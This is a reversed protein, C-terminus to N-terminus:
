PNVVKINQPPSPISAPTPTPTTPTPTPSPTPTPTPTPTATPTPTPSCAVTTATATNSYTSNSEGNADIRYARVKYWRPGSLTLNSVYTTTDAPVTDIQSFTTNNISREIKYGTENNSNDDWHLSIQQCASATAVLTTPPLIFVPTSTPTPTATPTPTPTPTPTGSPTCNSVNSYASCYTNAGCTGAGTCTIYARVRYYYIQGTTLGTDNYSVVDAAVLAIQTFTTGDTSREIKFGTENNTTDVWNLDIETASASTCSLGSPAPTPTFCPIPTPTPTPTPTPGSLTTASKTNSNLSPGGNNTGRVRYYYATNPSLGTVSKTQVNGVNLNIYGVVYQTFSSNTAVDLLYATAGAASNWNASFSTTTISTPDTAVPADPTPQPTPTPTPTPEGTRMPHPYTFPGLYPKGTGNVTAPYADRVQQPTTDAPIPTGGALPLNFYDRGEVISPLVSFAPYATGSAHKNNWIFSPEYAPHPWSSSGTVTNNPYVHGAQGPIPLYELPDGKGIGCQDMAILIRHIEYADGAAFKLLPGRDNTNYYEYTITDATNATIRSGKSFHPQAPNMNKVSYGIWQDPTWGAGAHTITARNGGQTGGTATGSFFLYPANGDIWHHKSKDLTPYGGGPDVNTVNQDWPTSGDATGWFEPYPLIFAKNAGIERYIDGMKISQPTQLQNGTWLNDHLFVNGGRLGFSGYLLPYGGGTTASGHFINDYIELCRPARTASGEMGHTAITANDWFNHRVVLRAGTDCDTNGSATSKGGGQLHNDEVFFFKYTGWWPYDEWAGTGHDKGGYQGPQFEFSITSRMKFYCHHTVGYTWGRIGVVPGNYLNDYHIQDLQINGPFPPEGFNGGVSVTIFGTSTIPTSTSSGAVFTIGSVRATQSPTINIKIAVAAGAGRPLEDGIVTRDNVLQNDAPGTITTQGKLTIGKTIELGQTWSIKGGPLSTTDPMTVTDGDLTSAKAIVCNVASPNAVCDSAVTGDSDWTNAAYLNFSWILIVSALIKPKM